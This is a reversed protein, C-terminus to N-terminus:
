LGWIQLCITRDKPEDLELMLLRQWRGLAPEGSRVPIVQSTGGLVMQAVHSRGNIREDPQVNQTRQEFDDHAYYIGAPVMENLRLHLDRLAGDEWENILRTSTTHTCYALSTGETVGSDKVARRLDDTLDIWAMRASARVVVDTTAIRM